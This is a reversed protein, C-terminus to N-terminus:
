DQNEIKGIHSDSFVHRAFPVRNARLRVYSCLNELTEVKRQQDQKARYLQVATYAMSSAMALM